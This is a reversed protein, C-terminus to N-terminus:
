RWSLLLAAQGGAGRSGAARLGHDPVDTGTFRLSRRGSLRRSRGADRRALHLQAGLDFRHCRGLGTGPPRRRHRHALPQHTRRRGTDPFRRFFEGRNTDMKIGSFWLWDQQPSLVISSIYNPVGPGDSGGADLGSRGRDRWIDLTRTLTMASGDVQWIEGFDKASLFRAVYVTAGDGSVALAGAEPGLEVRGAIDPDAPDIRLLQGNGADTAGRAKLSAYVRSGDRSIAVAQPASGYGTSISDALTGGASLVAVRDAGALAVWARGDPGVAVSVPRSGEDNGALADLSTAGLRAGTDADLRAVTGHDPNVVWVTRRSSDVAISSSHTPLPGPPIAAVSQLATRTTVSRTNNPKLDRVQVKVEFHGADAFTHQVSNAGSWATAPSGDGFSFRFEIPDSEPDFADASIAVQQGPETTAPARALSDIVPARNGGDISNGTAFTFSLGEIGNGAADKIGDPVVILEYTTDPDLDQKPTLTLVGDHAFSTWADVPAGGVPRLIVTEGNIITYSELEEAIVLSVPAGTPFNAQGPRPVHYGVFPGRTDPEAQHCWVGYGDRGDFSYSGSVLLNGLPLTYQSVDLEGPVSGPPRNDGVEDLELVPALAEMDIKHRRTFVFEDQTQVYPVNTGADLEPTGSLDLTTVLRLATPDSYDIVHMLDRPDGGALVLYNQWVAGIYAGFSGSLKDLVRPPGPPENFTPSIDYAVVGLNSADSVIFLLNGLLIGNGSVGDAALPEWEALLRDFRWLRGRGPSSGYQIWNFPVAWPWYIRHLSGGDPSDQDIWINGEPHSQETNVGPSDFRIEGGWNSFLWDGVKTHSHTGQDHFLPLDGERVITLSTPDAPDTFRVERRAGGGVNNTYIAGNHYAMNGIRGLGIRRHLLQGPTCSHSTPFGPVVDPVQASVTGSLILCCSGLLFLRNFIM